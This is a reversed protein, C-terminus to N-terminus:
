THFSRPVLVGQSMLKRGSAPSPFQTLTWIRKFKLNQNGSLQSVFRLKCHESVSSPNWKFLKFGPSTGVQTVMESTLGAVKHGFSSSCSPGRCLGAAGPGPERLAKRGGTMTGMVCVANGSSVTISSNNEFTFIGSLSKGNQEAFM